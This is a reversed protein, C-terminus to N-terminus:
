PGFIEEIQGGVDSFGRRNYFFVKISQIFGRMDVTVGPKTDVM